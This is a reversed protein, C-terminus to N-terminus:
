TNSNPTLRSLIRPYPLIYPDGQQPPIRSEGRSQVLPSPLPRLLISPSGKPIRSQETVTRCEACVDCRGLSQACVVGVWGLGTRGPTIPMPWASPLTQSTPAARSAPDGRRAARKSSFLLLPPSLLWYMTSLGSLSLMSPFLGGKDHQEGWVPCGSCPAEPAWLSEEKDGLPGQRSQLEEKRM